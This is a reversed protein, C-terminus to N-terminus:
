ELPVKLVLADRMQGPEVGHKEDRFREGQSDATLYLAGSVVVGLTPEDFAPHNMELIRAAAVSKGGPALGIRIVRNPEIGNQIAVLGGDFAALGDIGNLALDPPPTLRSLVKGPLELRWLGSYDSFYLADGGPALALGQVGRVESTEFFLELGPRGPVTTFIRGRGSDNVFIRGDAGATLDDFLPPEASAPPLRAGRLRGTDLDFELLASGTPQGKQFGEMHPLASSVVWLARRRPDAAVGMASQLGDRGPPVFDSIRGDAGVRVIKRRRISAVFFAKTVPDYAVGEPVLGKEPMTFATAAGSSIREKRLAEIADRARAYEPTGRLTALDDDADLNVAVRLAVFADLAELAAATRGNLARACALNYLIFADGPRLRAAEEYGELFLARDGRAYAKRAEAVLEPATKALRPSEGARPSPTAVPAAALGAALIIAPLSM